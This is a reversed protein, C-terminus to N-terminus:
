PLMGHLVTAQLFVILCVLLLLGVSWPVVTRFIKSEQGEMGVATAAIALSQPSIMKGVVGGSTNAAVMLAPDLGTNEAATQQLTAFLANASTDSGTVATGLWGLVPSFFAFAGGVAAIATGMALTQGSFNMVYALSLVLVITLGSWRMRWFCRGIEALADTFSLRYRGGGDRVAYVAAVLLGTILLLTGPSSLWPLSYVTSSIAAGAGDVLNGHLGPWPIKVNSSALLKPVDVGLTWLKAVGFVAVVLLYPLVAMWVRGPTLAETRAPTRVGLRQGAAAAGQPRWFRLLVVAAAMALLSAVVDTLEYSFHTSSWWIGVSFAGGIVLLAPWTERVGRVGDILFVLLFPVLVAVFPAQHGVVAGIHAAPIGTLQGATTIPIGVAGFAVPATNAILVVTAAKLPPLGLALLMTATIAVPAGFGALAELMGGFCFAILVAQIRVDGGGVSDFIARMDEFRGSLVTVQYFWLAMVVIWVIPLLGFVAGQTASLLALGAPMGFGLVAVLLAVALSALAAQWAKAKLALLLAFFTILPLTGLLASLGLSGAVADTTATFTPM